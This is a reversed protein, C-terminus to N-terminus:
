DDTKDFLDLQKNGKRKSEDFFHMSTEMQEEWLGSERKAKKLSEWPDELNRYNFIIKEKTGPIFRGPM